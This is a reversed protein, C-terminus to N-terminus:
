VREEDLSALGYLKLLHVLQLLTHQDAIRALRALDELSVSERERLTRWVQAALRTSEENGVPVACVRGSSTDWLRQLRGEADIRGDVATPMVRTQGNWAAPVTLTRYDERWDDQKLVIKGDALIPKSDVLVTPRLCVMDCHVQSTLTGGMDRNSGLAIHVSGYRKEDLLPTGTLRRVRENVGFGIEALCNWNADGQTRAYGLQAELLHRAAASRPPFVQVMRGAEFRLVLEENPTLVRGPLAGNIVIEGEATGEIPAVYTEGSPVNGWAGDHIIGDSIIPLRRWPSLAASLIHARGRRDFSEIKIVRSKVLALALDTCRRTLLDYDTDAMLLTRWNIGPMHAVRRGRGWAAHRIQARFALCEPDGSVCLITAVVERLAARVSEGLSEHALRKQLALPFYSLHPRCGYASATEALLEAIKLTTEDSVIALESEPSLALCHTIIANAAQLARQKNPM